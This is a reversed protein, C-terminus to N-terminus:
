FDWQTINKRVTDWEKTRPDILEFHGAGKLPVLKSNHSAKSFRESIDFPVIDDATGHILRQPVSIPLLEAPSASSYRQPVQEPTGGLLQKVVGNSLQLAWARRLDTIAALPIVGRLDVARQAALWLVLHGGASHGSAVVKKLDLGHRPAIRFLHEAGHVIDDFTGPWGGGPNGIRRYEMNWTAVGAQALAACLPGTHDINYAAKWYGGHIFIVVPHPGPGAPVRL